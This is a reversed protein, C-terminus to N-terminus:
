CRTGVREGSLISSYVAEYASAVSAWGYSPVCIARARDASERLFLADGCVDVIAAAIAAPSPDAALFRRGLRGAVEPNAGVPTAIVPTGCALAEATSLGFGEFRQAPMVVADARRYWDVLEADGVRGLLRVHATLGLEVIRRAVDRAIPGDGAIALRLDPLAERARAIAEVLELAGVSAVLRRAAFLVPTGGDAWADATAEGPRFRDTDIGGPIVSAREAHSPDLRAIEARMAESLVVIRTARRIIAAEVQRFLAVAPRQLPGPLLYSSQREILVERYVPAHLTYVFPRHAGLLAIASTPFHAHVVADPSRRIGARASRAQALPLLGAFLPNRKSPVDGRVIRVGDAALEESPHAPDVRKTLITVDHGRAALTASLERVYRYAGGLRDPTIANTLM